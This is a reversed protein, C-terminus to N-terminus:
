FNAKKKLFGCVGCIFVGLIRLILLAFNALYQKQIFVFM